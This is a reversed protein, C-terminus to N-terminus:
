VGHVRPRVDGPLRREPLRGGPVRGLLSPLQRRERLLRRRLDLVASRERHHLHGDLLRRHRHLDPV